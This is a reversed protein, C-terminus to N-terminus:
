PRTAGKRSRAIVKSWNEVIEIMMNQWHALDPIDEVRGGANLHDLAALATERTPALDKLNERGRWLVYGHRRYNYCFRWQL